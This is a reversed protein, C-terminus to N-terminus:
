GASWPDCPVDREMRLVANEKHLRVLEAREDASLGGTRGARNRRVWNGLM